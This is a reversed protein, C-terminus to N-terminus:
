SISLLGADVQPFSYESIESAVFCQVSNFIGLRRMVEAGFMGAYLSTGCAAICLNDIQKLKRQYQDLGGLKVENKNTYRGGYNLTRM